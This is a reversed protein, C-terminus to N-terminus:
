HERFVEACARESDDGGFRDWWADYNPLVKSSELELRRGFLAYTM